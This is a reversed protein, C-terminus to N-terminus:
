SAAELLDCEQRLRQQITSRAAYVRAIKMGLRRAVEPAPIGDLATMSFARWTHPAVRDRVRLKALDLIELDFTEELRRSLDDRATISCLPDDAMHCGHAQARTHRCRAFDQWAHHSVTKLWARFSKSPDYTFQKMRRALKFLVIQTVDQADADQLRWGLCWAYVKRGYREVFEFWAAENQTGHQALQNLLTWHTRSELAPSPLAPEDGRSSAVCAGLQFPSARELSLAATAGSM